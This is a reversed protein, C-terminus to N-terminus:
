PLLGARGPPFYRYVVRGRVDRRHVPGFVRSDTSRSPNDGEVALEDGAVSVVRKLLLRRGSRPDAVAVIDGLRPSSRRLLLLRDGSRLTPEMSPGEVAVRRPRLVGVILALVALGM